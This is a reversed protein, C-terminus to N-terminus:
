LALKTRNPSAKQLDSANAVKPRRFQYDCGLHARPNHNHKEVKAYMKLVFAWSYSNGIPLRLEIRPHKKYTARM